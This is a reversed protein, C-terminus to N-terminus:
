INIQNDFMKFTYIYFLLFEQYIQKFSISQIIKNNKYFSYTIQLKM